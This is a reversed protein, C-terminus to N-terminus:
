SCSFPPPLAAAAAAPLTADAGRMGLRSGTARCCCARSACMRADLGTLLAGQHAPVRSSVTSPQQLSPLKLCVLAGPKGKSARQAPLSMMAYAGCAAPTASVPLVGLFRDLWRIESGCVQHWFMRLNIAQLGPRVAVQVPFLHDHKAERLVVRHGALRLNTQGRM